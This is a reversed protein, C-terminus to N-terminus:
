MLLMFIVQELIVLGGIGVSQIFKVIVGMPGDIHIAILDLCAM